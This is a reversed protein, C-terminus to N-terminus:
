SSSPKPPLWVCLVNRNSHIVPGNTILDVYKTDRPDLIKLPGPLKSKLSRFDTEQNRVWWFMDDETEVSYDVHIDVDSDSRHDGRVRSGFLYVKANPSRAAWDALVRALEKTDDRVKL